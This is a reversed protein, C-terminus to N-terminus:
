LAMRELNLLKPSKSTDVGKILLRACLRSSLKGVKSPQRVLRSEVAHTM